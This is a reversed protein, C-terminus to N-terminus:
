MDEELIFAEEAREVKKSQQAVDENPKDEPAVYGQYEKECRAASQDSCRYFYQVNAIFNYISDSCSETFDTWADDITHFGQMIDSLARWPKLIALMLLIYLARDEPRDNRPFWQGVYLPV